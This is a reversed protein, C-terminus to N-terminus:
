ACGVGAGALGMRVLGHEVEELLNTADKNAPEL